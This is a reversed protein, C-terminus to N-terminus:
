LLYKNDNLFDLYYKVFINEVFLMKNNSSM